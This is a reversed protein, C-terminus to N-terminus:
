VTIDDVVLQIEVLQGVVTQPSMVIGNIHQGSTAAVAHGNTDTTVRTGATALSAGAVVLATGEVSLPLEKGDAAYERAVGQAKEGAVTCQAGSQKVFHRNNVVGSAIKTLIQLPRETQFIQVSM